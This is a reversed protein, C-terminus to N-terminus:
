FLFDGPGLAGLVINGLLLADGAGAAILVGGAQQSMHNAVLDAWDTVAALGRLDIREGAELPRFDAIRDSGYGTSFVFVDAGAGGTLM